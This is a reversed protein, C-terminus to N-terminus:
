RRRRRARGEQRPGFVMDYLRGVELDRYRAPVCEDLRRGQQREFAAIDEGVGALVALWAGPTRPRGVQLAGQLTSDLCPGIRGDTLLATAKSIGVCTAAEELVLGTALIAWLEDIAAAQRPTMAPAGRVTMDRLAKLPRRAEVMVDDLFPPDHTGDARSRRPTRPRVAQWRRLIRGLQQPRTAAPVALWAHWDEAYEVAFGEVAVHVEDCTMRRLATITM